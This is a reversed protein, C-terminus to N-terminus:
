QCGGVGGFQSREGLCIGDSQGAPEGGIGPYTRNDPRTPEIWPDIRDLNGIPQGPCVDRIPIHCENHGGVLLRCQDIIVKDELSAEECSAYEAVVRILEENSRALLANRKNLEILMQMSNDM